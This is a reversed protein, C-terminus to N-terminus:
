HITNTELNWEAVRVYRMLLLRETREGFRSNSDIAVFAVYIYREDM